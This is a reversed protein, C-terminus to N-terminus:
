TIWEFPTKFDSKVKLVGNIKEQPPEPDLIKLLNLYVDKLNTSRFTDLLDSPIQDFLRKPLADPLKNLIKVDTTKDIGKLKKYGLNIGCNPECEPIKCLEKLILDTIPCEARGYDIIKVIYPSYIVADDYHFEMVGNEFPKQLLINNLHLDFHTFKGRLFYLSAFTQFLVNKLHHKLFHPDTIKSYLSIANKVHQILIQNYLPEVCGRKLIEEHGMTLRMVDSENEIKTPANTLLKTHFSPTCQFLGYTELFNPLFVNIKNVFLGMFYEYILNDSKAIKSTKLVAYSVYDRHKFKIEHVIGNLSKSGIPTLVKDSYDFNKFGNFLQLIEERKKGLILCESSQPCHYKLYESRLTHKTKRFASQITKAYNGKTKLTLAKTPVRNPVKTPVRNPVKSPIKSPVKSRTPSKPVCFGRVMVHSSRCVCKGNIKKSNVPCRKNPQEIDPVCVGKIMSWGKKCVCIGKIKRSGNPCRM